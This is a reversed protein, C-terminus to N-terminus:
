EVNTKLSVNVRNKYSMYKQNGGSASQLIIYFVLGNFCFIEKKLSFQDIKHLTVIYLFVFCKISLM